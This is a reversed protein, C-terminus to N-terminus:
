FLVNEKSIKSLEYFYLFYFQERLRVMWLFDANINQNLEKM